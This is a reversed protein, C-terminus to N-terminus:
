FAAFSAYGVVERKDSGYDGSNARKLLSISWHNEHCYDIFGNLAYCGCADQPQLVSQFNLIHDITITDLAQAMSYGHYHSLDTSVVILTNDINKLANLLQKVTKQACEGVVVPVINFDVLATQLFPLQVELSHEWLHAEDMESALGLDLLKDCIDRNVLIKGLPTSFSSFSSLVCGQVYVKHSPGLLIVTDIDGAIDQLLRYGHAAVEGSFCYGAHPVILGKPRYNTTTVKKFMESINRGLEDPESPYFLGSVASPRDKM